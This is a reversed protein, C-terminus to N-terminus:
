AGALLVLVLLGFFLGIEWYLYWDHLLDPIFRVAVLFVVFAGYGACFVRTGAAAAPWIQAVIALTTPVALFAAAWAAKLHVRIRWGRTHPVIGTIALLALTATLGVCSPLWLHRVPRLRTWIDAMLVAVTAVDVVGFLWQSWTAEAVHGSVSEHRDWGSIACIGVSVVGVLIVCVIAALEV